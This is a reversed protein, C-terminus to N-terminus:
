NQISLGSSKGSSHDKLLYRGVSCIFRKNSYKEQITISFFCIYVLNFFVQFLVGLHPGGNM